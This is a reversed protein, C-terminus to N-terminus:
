YANPCRHGSPYATRMIWVRNIKRYVFKYSRVTLPRYGICLNNANVQTCTKGGRIIPYPTNVCDAIPNYQNACIQTNQNAQNTAYTYWAQKFDNWFNFLSKGLQTDGYYAGQPRATLGFIHQWVHGGLRTNTNVDKISYHVSLVKRCEVAAVAQNSTALIVQIVTLLGVAFAKRGM